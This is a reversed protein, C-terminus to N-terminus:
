SQGYVVEGSGASMKRKFNDSLLSIVSEDCGVICFQM